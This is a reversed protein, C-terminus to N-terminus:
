RVERPVLLVLGAALLAPLAFAYHNWSPALAGTAVATVIVGGYVPGLIAGIRGVAFEWGLATARASAPYYGGVFANVLTQTNAGFGAAAAAVLLPATAPRLAFVLVSVAAVLFSGCIVTREGVRDALAGAGIVGVVAGANFVLLFALSSGMSYGSRRMLEPLWTNLGYVLLLGIVSILWFLVTARLYRGSFLVRVSDLRWAGATAGSPPEPPELGYRAAYRRAEAMRGRAALFAVSEPLLRYAVPVVLVLPAAGIFFMARFGGVPLVVIALVAALVGGVSYGSFMVANRLQRRATPSYEITLAIATPVVGGLGLGTVFRLLGFIEPNPALGTLPMAVSFWVLCGLMIRRRGLVDTLTGVAVGGVLTGLLALGGLQGAQAPTLGWPRYALLDPLVSGFTILDYGDAVITVWCIALM